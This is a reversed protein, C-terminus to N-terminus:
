PEKKQEQPIRFATYLELFAAVCLCAIWENGKTTFMLVGTLILAVAGILQQNRLRKLVISEAKFPTIFQAAAFMVAGICYVYPGVPKGFRTSIVLAGILILVAGTVYLISLLYRM